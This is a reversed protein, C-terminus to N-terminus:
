LFYNKKGCDLVHFQNFNSDDAQSGGYIYVKNERLLSTCSNQWSFCFFLFLFYFYFYYIFFKKKKVWFCSGLFFIKFFFFLFIYYIKNLPPNGDLRIKEWEDNKLNYKYFHTM